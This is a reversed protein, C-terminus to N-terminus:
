PQKPRNGADEPGALVVHDGSVRYPLGDHDFLYTRGDTELVEYPGTMEPDRKHKRAHNRPYVWDGSTVSVRRPRVSKDYDRKSRAQTKANSDRVQPLLAKLSELFADRAEAVSQSPDPTMGDPMREHSFNSLRRPTVLGMPAVGTKRHPRSNYALASVSVLEDWNDQYDEIHHMFMDVLTKNFCEVQGNTPPHYTSTYLNRIGMMSCVGQFFLSAFQPGNETLVTDPPGNM